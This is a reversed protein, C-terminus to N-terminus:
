HHHLHHWMISIRWTREVFNANIYDSEKYNCQHGTNKGRTGIKQKKAAIEQIEERGLRPNQLSGAALRQAAKLEVASNSAPSSFPEQSEWGLVDPLAGSASTGPKKNM